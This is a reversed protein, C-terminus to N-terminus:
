DRQSVIWICFAYVLNLILYLLVEIISIVSMGVLIGVLGGMEALYDYFTYDPIEEITVEEMSSFHVSLEIGRNPVTRSQTIIESEYEIERCAVPCNCRHPILYKIFRTLHYSLCSSANLLQQEKGKMETTLRPQWRDIVTGCNDFMERLFCSQVCSQQSYQLSFFNEIGAGDSCNSPFPKQLRSISNYEKIEIIRPQFLDEYQLFEIEQLLHLHYIVDNTVNGIYVTVIVDHTHEISAVVTYDSSSKQKRSGELNVVACEHIIPHEQLKCTPCLGHGSFMRGPKECSGKYYYTSFLESYYKDTFLTKNSFCTIRERIDGCLTVTPITLENTDRFRKEERVDRNSFRTFYEMGLYAAFSM